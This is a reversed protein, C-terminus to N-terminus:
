FVRGWRSILHDAGLLITYFKLNCTSESVWAFLQKLSYRRSKANISIILALAPIGLKMKIHCLYSSVTIYFSLLILMVGYKHSLRTECNLNIKSKARIIQYLLININQRFEFCLRYMYHSDHIDKNSKQWM